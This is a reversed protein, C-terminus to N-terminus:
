VITREPMSSLIRPELRNATTTRRRNNSARAKTRPCKQFTPKARNMARGSSSRPRRPGATDEEQEREQGEEGEEGDDLAASELSPPERTGGQLTLDVTQEWLSHDDADMSPGILPEDSPPASVISLESLEAPRMSEFNSQETAGVLFQAGLDEPDVSLGEETFATGKLEESIPKPRATPEPPMANAKRSKSAAM